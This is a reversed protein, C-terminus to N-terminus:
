IEKVAEIYAKKSKKDMYGVPNGSKFRDVWESIYGTNTENPLRKLMFEEFLLSNNMGKRQAIDSFLERQKQKTNIKYTM